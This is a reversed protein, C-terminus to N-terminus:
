SGTLRRHVVLSDAVHGVIGRMLLELSSKIVEPFKADPPFPHSRAQVLRVDPVGQSTSLFTLACCLLPSWDPSPDITPYPPRGGGSSIGVPVRRATVDSPQGKGTVEM